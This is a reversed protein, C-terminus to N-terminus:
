KILKLRENLTNLLTGTRDGSYEWFMIGGLHEEKVYEAKLGLSEPDDYSIVMASDKSYLYPAKAVPDWYRTFTNKNLYTNLLETYVKYQGATTGQQYLGHNIDPVGRWYRGYFPVGIVLKAAPVGANKHRQVAVTASIAAAGQIDTKWLNAHHGSVTSLGSYFDYAMINIFDLYKHAEGLDTWKFYEEDAGSAITLLLPNGKERKLELSLKDLEERLIKLMLTFNQKDVIRYVNGGGPQGPYEWDIDIGDFQHERIMRCGSLAFKMRSEPTLAADSFGEAGWGGVSLMIKLDPNKSKLGVIRAASEKIRQEQEPNRGHFAMEGDVVKAFAYNIHTLMRILSDPYEAQRAGMMYAILKYGTRSPQSTASLTVLAAVLCLLMKKRIGSLIKM